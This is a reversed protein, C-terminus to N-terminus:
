RCAAARRMRAAGASAVLSRAMGAVFAAQVAPFYLVSALTIPLPEEKARCMFLLLAYFAFAPVLALRLPSCAVGIAAGVAAPAVVHRARISGPNLLLMKTRWYGYRHWQRVTGLVGRNIIFRCPLPARLIRFGAKRIRACLEADENAELTEDFGGAGILVAAPWAGLYATDVERIDDGFRYTAGGLGMRNTYLAQVLSEGFTKGPMPVYACGVCGVDDGTAELIRVADELYTPGYITHADLRVVVDDKCVHRLGLNLSSPIKRRQNVIVRGPTGSQAFWEEAIERSGDASSGDVVLLYLRERNFTQAQISELVAPLHRSENYVPMLAVVRRVSM